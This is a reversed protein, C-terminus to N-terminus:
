NNIYLAVRFGYTKFLNNNIVERITVESNSKSTYASGGRLVPLDGDSYTEMTYESYNGVMDYINKVSYNNNSGSGSFTDTGINGYESSKQIYEPYNKEIFKLTTDWQEAYVLTSVVGTENTLNSPLGYESIKNTNVYMGRALKKAVNIDAINWVTKEPKSIPLVSGDQKKDDTNESIGAEYRAIYFGGNKKISEKTLNFEEDEVENYKEFETDDLTWKYTVFKNKFEEDSSSEVPIWVFENGDKDKVVLGNNWGDASGWIAEGENVPAFGKPIIPNYYTGTSKLNFTSSNETIKGIDLVDRDQIKFVRTLKHKSVSNDTSIVKIYKVKGINEHKINLTKPSDSSTSNVNVNVENLYDIGNDSTSAQVSSVGNKNVFTLNYSLLKETNQNLELGIYMDDQGNYLGITLIKGDENNYLINGAKDIIIFQIGQINKDVKLVINGDKDAIAKKGKAKLYDVDYQTVNDYYAGLQGNSNYQTLYEYRVEKIGSTQDSVNIPILNFEEEYMFEDSNISYVPLDTEYNSMDVEIKGLLEGEKQKIFTIKKNKQESNKFANSEDSTFGNLESLDNFSFENNGDTTTLKKKKVNTAELYLEESSKLNAQVFININNTWGKVSKKVTLGDITQVSTSGDGQYSMNKDIKVKNTLKSSLSFYIEHKIKLGKVYYVNMSPYSVVYIDKTDGEAESGRSTSDVDLKKLDIPYYEGLEDNENNYDGNLELEAIFKEKNEDGVLKLLDSQTLMGEKSNDNTNSKVPFSNNQMYYATTLDEVTSLDTAFASLKSNKSINDVSVIIISLLIIMVIITILLAVLSMGRKKNVKKIENIM